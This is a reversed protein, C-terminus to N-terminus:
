LEDATSEAAELESVAEAYSEVSGPEALLMGPEVENVGTGRLLIGVESGAEVQDSANFLVELGTIL